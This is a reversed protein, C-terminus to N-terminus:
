HLIKKTPVHTMRPDEDHEMLEEETPTNEEMIASLRDINTRIRDMIDDDGDDKDVEIGSEEKAKNSIMRYYVIVEPALNGWGLIKEKNIVFKVDNTFNVWRQLGTHEVIHDPRDYTHQKTVSMPCEVVLADSYEQLIKCLVDDGNIMKIVKYPSDNTDKDAFEM